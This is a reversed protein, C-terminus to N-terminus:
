TIVRRGAGQRHESIDAEVDADLDRAVDVVIFRDPQATRGTQLYTIVCGSRLFEAASSRSDTPIAM